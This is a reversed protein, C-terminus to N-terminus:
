RLKKWKDRVSKLQERTNVTLWEGDFDIVDVRSRESLFFELSGKDPLGAAIKYTLLTHGVHQACSNQAFLCGENWVSYPLFKGFVTPHKALIHAPNVGGVLLDDVNFVYLGGCSHGKIFKSWALKVAGGTGLPESEVSRFVFMGQPVKYKVKSALHGLCLVVKSFGFRKLRDLQLQILSVGGVKLMAKPTNPMNLRTGLGGALIM